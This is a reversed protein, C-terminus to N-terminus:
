KEKKVKMIKLLESTEGLELWITLMRPMAQYIFKTGHSLALSFLKCTESRDQLGSTGCIVDTSICLTLLPPSVCQVAPKFGEKRALKEYQLNYYQGLYYYPSEWSLFM